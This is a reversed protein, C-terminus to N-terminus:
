AVLQKRELLSTIQESSLGVTELKRKLSDRRNVLENRLSEADWLQRQSIAAESKRIRSLTAEVLGLELHAQLLDLQLKQLEISAIEAVVEGKRVAQNRDM